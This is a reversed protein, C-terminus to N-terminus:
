DHITDMVERQMKEAENIIQTQQARKQMTSIITSADQMTMEDLSSLKFYSLLSQLNDSKYHSKIVEIQKPTAHRVKRGMPENPSEKEADDGTAVLFTNALYYKVAGTYAKYGAKDGKDLGEGTITSNEYFGTECDILSFELKVYRGNSQKASGDFTDYSVENFKLELGCQSFLETFLQKYQAESFYSYHDYDNKGKKALIGKENLIRRAANKKQQLKANLQLWEKPEMVDFNM